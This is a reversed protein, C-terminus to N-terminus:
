WPAGHGRSYPQDHDIVFPGSRLLDLAGDLKARLTWLTDGAEIGIRRLEFPDTRATNWGYRATVAVEYWRDSALGTFTWTAVDAGAAGGDGRLALAAALAVLGTAALSLAALSARSLPM